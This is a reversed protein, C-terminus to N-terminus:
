AILLYVSISYPFGSLAPLSQLSGNQDKHMLKPMIPKHSAKMHQQFIPIYASICCGHQFCVALQSISNTGSTCVKSQDLRLRRSYFQIRRHHLYCSSDDMQPDTWCRLFHGFRRAKSMTCHLKPTKTSEVVASLAAPEALNQSRDDSRQDSQTTSQSAISSVKPSHHAFKDHGLRDYWIVSTPSRSILVFRQSLRLDRSCSLPSSTKKRKEKKSTCDALNGFM